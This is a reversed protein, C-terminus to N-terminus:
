SYSWCLSMSQSRLRWCGNFEKIINTRNSLRRKTRVIYAIGCSCTFEHIYMLSCCQVYFVLKRPLPAKYLWRSPTSILNRYSGRKVSRYMALYSFLWTPCSQSRNENTYTRQAQYNSEVRRMVLSLSFIRIFIWLMLLQQTNCYIATYTQSMIQMEVSLLVVLTFAVNMWCRDISQFFFCSHIKEVVTKCSSQIVHDPMCDIMFWSSGSLFRNVWNQIRLLFRLDTRHSADLVCLIYEKPCSELSISLLEM